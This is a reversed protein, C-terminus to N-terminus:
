LRATVQLPPPVVLLARATVTLPKPGVLLGKSSHLLPQATITLWLLVSTSSNPVSRFDNPVTCFHNLLSRSGSSYRPQPTQSRAFTGSCRAFTIQSSAFITQSYAFITQFHAFTGSCHDSATSCDAFPTPLHVCISIHTGLIPRESFDYRWSYSFVRRNGLFGHFEFEKFPLERVRELQAREDERSILDPQYKFGEPLARGAGLLDLQNQTM